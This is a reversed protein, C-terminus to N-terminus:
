YLHSVGRRQVGDNKADTRKNASGRCPDHTLDQRAERGSANGSHRFCDFSKDVDSSGQEGYEITVDEELLRAALVVLAGDHDNFHCAASVADTNTLHDVEELDRPVRDGLPGIQRPDIGTEDLRDPDAVALVENQEVNIRQHRRDDAASESAALRYKFCVDDRAFRLIPESM